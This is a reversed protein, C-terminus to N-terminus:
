DETASADRICEYVKLTILERKTAAAEILRKKNAIEEVNINAEMKNPDALDLGTQSFGRNMNLDTGKGFMYNEM